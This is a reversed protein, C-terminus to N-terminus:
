ICLSQTCSNQHFAGNMILTKRTKININDLDNETWQIVLAAFTIVPVALNNITANIVNKGNLSSKSLLDVRLTYEDIIVQKSEDRELHINQKM